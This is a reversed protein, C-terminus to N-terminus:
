NCFYTNGSQPCFKGTTPEIVGGKAPIYPKGDIYIWPKSRAAEEVARSRRDAQQDADTRYRDYLGFITHQAAYTKDARGLDRLAEARMKREDPTFRALACSLVRGREDGLFAREASSYIQSTLRVDIDRLDSPEYCKGPPTFEARSQSANAPTSEAAPRGEMPPAITNGGLRHNPIAEGQGVCPTGSYVIKGDTGKCRFVQADAATVISAALLLALISIHTRM